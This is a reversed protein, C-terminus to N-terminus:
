GARWLWKANVDALLQRMIHLSMGSSRPRHSARCDVRPIELRKDYRQIDKELRAKEEEDQVAALTQLAEERKQQEDAIAKERRRKRQQDKKREKDEEVERLRVEEAVENEHAEVYAQRDADAANYFHDHYKRMLDTRRRKRKQSEQIELELTRKHNRQSYDNKPGEM